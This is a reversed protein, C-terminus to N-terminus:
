DKSQFLSRWLWHKPGRSEIKAITQALNDREQKSLGFLIHWSQRILTSLTFAICIGLGLFAEQEHRITVRVAAWTFFELWMKIDTRLQWLSLIGITLWLFIVFYWRLRIQIAVLRQIKQDM